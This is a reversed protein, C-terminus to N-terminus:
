HKFKFGYKYKYKYKSQGHSRIITQEEGCSSKIICLTHITKPWMHLRHYCVRKKESSADYLVLRDATQALSFLPSYSVLPFFPIHINCSSRYTLLLCQLQEYVKKMKKNANYVGKVQSSHMLMAGNYIEVIYYM